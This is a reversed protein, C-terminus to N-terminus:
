MTRRFGRARTTCSAWTTSRMPTLAQEAFSTTYWKAAESTDKPVGEGYHYMVGLNCQADPTEKSRPRATGSRLKAPIKRCERVETTAIAGLNYQAYRRRRAGRGQPVVEYSRQYREPVGEGRDYMAGLNSNRKAHGQEAAKRYWSVLRATM